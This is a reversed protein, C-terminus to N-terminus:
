GRGWIERVCSLLARLLPEDARSAACVFWLTTRLKEGNWLCIEGAKERPRAVDERILSAGVGSVVLDVIVSEDDAEIRHPPLKVGHTSFLQQVLHSHTSIAPTRIWPLASIDAWDANRMRQSWAAPAAVRYVIQKLPLAVFEGGPADGFYFSADFDREHVAQLAAGSVSHHLELQLRPHRSVACALLDGVRNYQPDSVTGVRLTGILEGKLEAAGRRLADVAQLVNRARDLMEAGAPTLVMGSAVRDFLKLDFEQELGKIHASVAPQSIHLREAAHTLHGEEAVAIFTRLQYLELTKNLTTGTRRCHLEPRHM